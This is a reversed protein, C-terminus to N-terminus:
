DLSNAFGECDEDLLGADNCDEIDPMIADCSHWAGFGWLGTGEIYECDATEIGITCIGIENEGCPQSNTNGITCIGCDNDYSDILGDCDNDIGDNCSLERDYEGPVTGDCAGWEEWTYSGPLCQRTHQGYSCTSGEEWDIVVLGVGPVEATDGSECNEEAGFPWAMWDCDINTLICDSQTTGSTDTWLSNYYLESNEITWGDDVNLICSISPNSDYEGRCIQMPNEGDLWGQCLGDGLYRFNNLGGISGSSNYAASGLDVCCWDFPAGCLENNDLVAGGVMHELNSVSVRNFNPDCNETYPRLISKLGSISETNCLGVGEAIFNSDNLNGTFYLMCNSEGTKQDRTKSDCASEQRDVSIGEAVFRQVTESDFNRDGDNDIGDECSNVCIDSPVCRSQLTIWQRTKEFFSQSEDNRFESTPSISPTEAVSKIKIPSNIPAKLPGEGSSHITMFINPLIERPRIQCMENSECSDFGCSEKGCYVNTWGNILEKTVSRAEVIDFNIASFIVIFALLATLSIKIKKVM